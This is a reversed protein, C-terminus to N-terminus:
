ESFWSEVRTPSSSGSLFNAVERASTHLFLLAPTFEHEPMLSRLRQFLIESAEWAALSHGGMEFFDDDPGVAVGLVERLTDVVVSILIADDM